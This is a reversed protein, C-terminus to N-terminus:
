LWLSEIMLTAHTGGNRVAAGGIIIREHPKLTLKLPM